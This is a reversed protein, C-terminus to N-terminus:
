KKLTSYWNSINGFQELSLVRILYISQIVILARADKLIREASIGITKDNKSDHVWMQMTERLKSMMDQNPQDSRWVVQYIRPM